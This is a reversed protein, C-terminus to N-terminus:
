RRYCYSAPMLAIRTSSSNTIPFHTHLPLLSHPFPLPQERWCWPCFIVVFLHHVLFPSSSTIQWTHPPPACKLPLFGDPFCGCRGVIPRGVSGARSGRAAGQESGEPPFGDQQRKGQARASRSAKPTSRREPHAGRSIKRASSWGWLDSERGSPVRPFRPGLTLVLSQWFALRASTLRPADENGAYCFRPRAHVPQPISSQIPLLSCGKPGRQGQYILMTIRLPVTRENRAHAAIKEVTSHAIAARLTGMAEVRSCAPPRACSAMRSLPPAPFLFRLPAASSCFSAVMSFFILGLLSM